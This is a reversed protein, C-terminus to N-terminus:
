RSLEEILNVIKNIEEGRIAGKKVYKVRNDKGILIFVSTNNCDGLGWKKALILDPDTLITTNYKKIKGQVIKRILFNPAKSDKLNAIGMGKYKADPFKKAKIADALPDNIDAADADNYFISILKTGMHPITAPKNNADRVQVNSLVQGVSAANLFVSGLLIVAGSLAIILLASFVSNQKGM